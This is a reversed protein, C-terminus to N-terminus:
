AKINQIDSSMDQISNLFYVTILCVLQFSRYLLFPILFIQLNYLICYVTTLVTDYEIYCEIHM